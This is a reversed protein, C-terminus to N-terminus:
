FTQNLNVYFVRGNPNYLEVVRRDDGPRESDDRPFAEDFANLAGVAVTGDWPHDWSYQLDFTSYRDIRGTEASNNQDGIQNNRIGFTHGNNSVSTKLAARWRPQGRDYLTDEQDAGPFASGRSFLKQSYDAALAISNESIRFRYNVNFDVGADESTGLNSTPLVIRDLGGTDSGGIREISVGAVTEGRAIADLVEQPDVAAIIDDIEIYWYDAGMSLGQIPETVVGVNYAFSTEEKLNPSGKTEVEVETTIKEDGRISDTLNDLTINTGSHIESLTPAKFGTGVNGRFLLEPIPLYKFGLKPNTTAGFEEYVDHRAALQIELSDLVPLALEVFAANVDRDGKGGKSEDIGFVNGAESQPDLMKEYRQESRQLGFALGAFGGAMAFTQGSVSAQYTTMQTDIVEFPEYASRAVVALSGATLETEFPNFEGRSIGNTLESVLMFGSPMYTDRKSQTHGMMLNWDWDFGVTGELGINGGILTNEEEWQRLGFPVARLFIDVDDDITGQLGLQGQNQLAVDQPLTFSGANPAMNWLNTQKTARVSSFLRVKDNVNYEINNLFGLQTVEPSFAMTQGYNYSCVPGDTTSDDIRQGAPVDCNNHATLKAGDGKIAYNAPFSYKSFGQETWERDRHFTPEIHRYNIATLLRFNDANFGAVYAFETETAGDLRQPTSARAYVASGNMDKRTIINVVGGIADSGYIASASDKLVEIREVAAMPITSLDVVGEGAEDPLRRGDLLVLTNEPGLGRLNVNTTSGRDEDVTLSSYSGQSSITMNQMMESVSSFGSKEIAERDIVIMSSVGEVETRKIHSGTVEIREPMNEQKQVDLEQAALSGSIMGAGCLLRALRTDITM